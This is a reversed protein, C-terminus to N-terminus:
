SGHMRMTPTPMPTSHSSTVLEVSIGKQMTQAALFPSSAALSITVLCVKLMYNM